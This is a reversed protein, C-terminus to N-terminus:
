FFCDSERQHTADPVPAISCNFSYTSDASNLVATLGTIVSTSLMGLTDIGTLTTNGPNTIPIGFRKYSGFGFKTFTIDHNGDDLGYLLFSGATNSAGKLDNTSSIIMAGHDSLLVGFEDALRIKGTMSGQLPANPDEEKTCSVFGCVVVLQIIIFIKRFM